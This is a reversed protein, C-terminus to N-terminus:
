RARCPRDAPQQSMGPNRPKLDEYELRDLYAVFDTVVQGLKQRPEKNHTAITQNCHIFLTITITLVPLSKQQRAVLQSFKIGPSM